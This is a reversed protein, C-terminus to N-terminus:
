PRSLRFRDFLAPDTFGTITAIRGGPLELVKVALPEGARYALLAPGGNARTRELRLDPFRAFTAAVFALVADRGRYWSPSPPMALEVDERLLDVLADVDHAHWAAIYCSVVDDVDGDDGSPELPVAARARRLSGNVSALTAGLLAAVDKAPWDLVDRLILVARQQPPLHQLAAVFALRVSERRDVEDAPDLLTDPYPQLWPVDIAAAPIATPEDPATLDQPLVRRARAALADLCTNTAIGYLWARFPARGAYTDRRRWARLMTEQVLDEAEHLSGVMRYCHVQLERRHPEALARFVEADLRDTEAAGVTM